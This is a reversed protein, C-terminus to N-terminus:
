HTPTSDPDGEGGLSPPGLSLKDLHGTGDVAPGRASGDRSRQDGAGTPPNYGLVLWGSSSEARCAVRVPVQNSDQKASTKFSGTGPLLDTAQLSGQAQTGQQGGPMVPGLPGPIASRSMQAGM